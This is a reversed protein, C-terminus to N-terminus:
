VCVHRQLMVSGSLLWRIRITPPTTCCHRFSRSTKIPRSRKTHAMLLEAFMTSTFCLVCILPNVRAVCTFLINILVSVMETNLPLVPGFCSALHVHHHLHHHRYCARHICEGEDFLCRKRRCFTGGGGWCLVSRVTTVIM